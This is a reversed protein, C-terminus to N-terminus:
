RRPAGSDARKPQRSTRTINYAAATAAVAAVRAKVLKRVLAVPLPQDFLFRITGKGSTAYGNFDGAEAEVLGYLAYHKAAAGFWVLCKGNLRFAPIRYSICEEADPAAAQISKRLKELAVRQSGSLGTLYDDITKPQAQITPRQAM